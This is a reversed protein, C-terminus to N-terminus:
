GTIGEQWTVKFLVTPNTTAAIMRIAARENFIPFRGRWTHQGGASCSFQMVYPNTADYTPEATFTDYINVGSAADGTQRSYKQINASQDTQTGATTVIGLGFRVPVDTAAVSFGQFFLETITVLEGAGALIAWLTKNTTTALAQYTSWTFTNGM